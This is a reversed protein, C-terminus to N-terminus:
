VSTESYFLVLIKKADLLKNTTIKNCVPVYKGRFDENLAVQRAWSKQFLMVHFNSERSFKIM